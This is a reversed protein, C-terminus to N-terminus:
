KLDEVIEYEYDNLFIELQEIEYDYATIKYTKTTKKPMDNLFDDFSKEQVPAQLIEEINEVRQSERLKKVEAEIKRILEAELQKHRDIISTIAQTVNLSARYEIIIEAHYEQTDILILDSLIRDISEKVSNKLSKLSNSLGIKINLDEFKLFDIDTTALLEKFYEKVEIEKEKKIEDEVDAIKSKLTSDADKFQDTVCDKYIELFEEYPKMVKEKVEKRMTELETFKKNLKARTSKVVKISDENCVLSKANDVDKKVEIKLNKLHEEIIPLQKVIILENTNM